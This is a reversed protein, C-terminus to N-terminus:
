GIGKDRLLAYNKRRMDKYVECHYSRKACDRDKCRQDAKRAFFWQRCRRCQRVRDLWGDRFGRFIAHFALMENPSIKRVPMLTWELLGDKYGLSFDSRYHRLKRNLRTLRAKLQSAPPWGRRRRPQGGGIRTFEGLETLLSTIRWFPRLKSQVQARSIPSPFGKIEALLPVVSIFGSRNLWSILM